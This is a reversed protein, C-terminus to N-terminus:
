TEEDSVITVVESIKLDDEFEAQRIATLCGGCLDVFEGTNPDKRTSEIDNLECDCARCRM